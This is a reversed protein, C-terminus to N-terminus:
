PYISGNGETDGVVLEGAEPSGMRVRIMTLRRSSRTILLEALYVTGFGPIHLGWPPVDPDRTCGHSEPGPFNFLSTLVKPEKYTLPQRLANMAQAKPQSALKSVTECRFLEEYPTHEVPVGVIRLNTFYSGVPLMPIEEGDDSKESVLRAVVRDATVMGRIDLGEITVTTLTNYVRRGDRDSENGCVTSSATQFSILDRYRFNEVRASGYGGVVPLVSAAQAELTECYPRTIRGGCALVGGHYLFRKEQDM